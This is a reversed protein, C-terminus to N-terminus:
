ENAKINRCRRKPPGPGGSRVAVVERRTSSGTLPSKTYAAVQRAVAGDVGDNRDSALSASSRITAPLPQMNTQPTVEFSWTM